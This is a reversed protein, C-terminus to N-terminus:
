RTVQPNRRWDYNLGQILRRREILITLLENSRHKLYANDSDAKVGDVCSFTLAFLKNAFCQEPTIDEYFRGIKKIDAWNLAEIRERMIAKTEKPWM